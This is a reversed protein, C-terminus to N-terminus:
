SPVKFLLEVDSSFVWAETFRARAEVYGRVRFAGGRFPAYAKRTMAAYPMVFAIRGSQRMYLHVSRAFFYASLDFAAGHTKPAWLGAAKMEDRSRRQVAPNMARYDLWPPNGIAV